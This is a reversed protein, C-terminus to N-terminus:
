ESWKYRWIQTSGSNGQYVNVNYSGSRTGNESNGINLPTNNGAETISLTQSSSNKEEELTNRGRYYADMKKQGLEMMHKSATLASAFMTLGLSAVLLAALLETLSEGKKSSLCHVVKKQIMSKEM